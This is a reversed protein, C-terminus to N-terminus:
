LLGIRGKRSLPKGQKKKRPLSLSSFLGKKSKKKKKRRTKGHHEISVFSFGVNPM